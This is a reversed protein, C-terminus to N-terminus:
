GAPATSATRERARATVDAALEVVDPGYAEPNVVRLVVAFTGDEGYRRALRRHNAVLYRVGAHNAVGTQGSILFVPRGGEPTPLRALLAFVENDWDVTFSRDGAMIVNAPGDSGSTVTVGPLGWALHAAMRENSSPGGFCFETKAGLGRHVADHAVLETQAGCEKVLAALEMLAYADRRTVTRAHAGVGVSRNVVILCEGGAPLGFFSRVRELRRRRRLNQALWGLAASIASAVLGLLVNLLSDTM